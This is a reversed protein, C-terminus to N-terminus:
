LTVPVPIFDSSAQQIVKVKLVIIKIIKKKRKKYYLPIRLFPFTGPRPMGGCGGWCVCGPHIQSRDLVRLWLGTWAKGAGHGTGRGRVGELNEAPAM